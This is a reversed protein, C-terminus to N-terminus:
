LANRILACGVEDWQQMETVDNPGVATTQVTNYFSGM